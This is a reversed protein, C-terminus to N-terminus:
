IADIGATGKTIDEVAGVGASELALRVGTDVDRRNLIMLNVVIGVVM